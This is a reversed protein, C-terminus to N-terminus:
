NNKLVSTKGRLRNQLLEGIFAVFPLFLGLGLLCFAGQLEALLLITYDNM